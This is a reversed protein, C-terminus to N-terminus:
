HKTPGLGPAFQKRGKLMTGYQSFLSEREEQIYEARDLMSGSFYCDANQASAPLIKLRIAGATFHGAFKVLEELQSASLGGLLESLAKDRHEERARKSPLQAARRKNLEV